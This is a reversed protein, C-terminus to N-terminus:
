KSMQTDGGNMLGLTIWHEERPILCYPLALNAYFLRHMVM